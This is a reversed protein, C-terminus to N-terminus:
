RENSGSEGLITSESLFAPRIPEGQIMRRMEECDARYERLTTAQFSWYSIGPDFEQEDHESHFHWDLSALAQDVATSAEETSGVGWLLLALPQYYYYEACVPNEAVFQRLQTLAEACLDRRIRGIGWYAMALYFAAPVDMDVWKLVLGKKPTKLPSTPIAARAQDRKALLDKITIELYRIAEPFRRQGLLIESVTDLWFGDYHSNRWSPLLVAPLDIGKRFDDLSISLLELL